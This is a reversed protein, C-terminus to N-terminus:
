CSPNQPFVAPLGCPVASIRHPVAPLSHPVAPPGAPPLAAARGYPLNPLVPSHVPAKQRSSCPKVEGKQQMKPHSMPFDDEECARTNCWHPTRQTIHPGPTFWAVPFYWAKREPCPEQQSGPCM